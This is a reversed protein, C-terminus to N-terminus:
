LLYVVLSSAHDCVMSCKNQEIHIAWSNGILFSFAKGHLECQILYNTYRDKGGSRNCQSTETGARLQSGVVHKQRKAAKIYQKSGSLVPCM